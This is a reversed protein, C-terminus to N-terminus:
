QAGSTYTESTISDSATHRCELGFVLFGFLRLLPLDATGLEGFPGTTGLSGSARFCLM